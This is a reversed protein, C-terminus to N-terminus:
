ATCAGNLTRLCALRQLVEGSGPSTTHFCRAAQFDTLALELPGPVHM